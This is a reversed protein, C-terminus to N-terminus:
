DLLHRELFSSAKRLWRVWGDRDPPGHGATEDVEYEVEVGRQRLREVMQDSEAQVVRPDNKGQIVLLPACLADVYTIPSREVLLDRDAEADGVWAATLRRWHPPVSKVFTVLNSPGVLDVGAAWHQPLRTLASLAVFGGFSGGFVALREGNVWPLGSLYNAAAEIDRLEGGGWDRHILKQYSRGYGTSGRINPALVGIGRSVLYQYFGNYGYKPREQAEPGGHVSLVVPFPGPGPPRYLWAPIDRDFSPYRVHEPTAMASQPVGGLMSQEVARLRGGGAHSSGAGQPDAVKLDVLHLNPAETPSGLALVATEGDPRLDLGEVVALPLDPAPLPTERGEDLAFLALRSAGGDNVVAALRRGDRSVAVGEVDADPAHVFSWSGDSGSVFALGAFERGADTFVYFGAGDRRWPGPFAKAPEEEGMVIRAEGSAMDLLHIKQHTNSVLEVVPLTRGDPAMEAAYYLGGTMLRMVEGTHADILQPDTETPDRDNGTVVVHKGDPTWGSLHYQVQDRDTLQRPWGGSEDVVYLQHMEDGHHDALFAIRSGDPSWTFDTVRHESLFTIQRPFGGDRSQWWLNPLGTTNALYAFGDGRPSFRPLRLQRVATYQEFRPENM